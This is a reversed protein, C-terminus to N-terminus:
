GQNVRPPLQDMLAKLRSVFNNMGNLEIVVGLQQTLVTLSELDDPDLDMKESHYVKLLGIVNDRYKIPVSLISSIGEDAANKAYRIRSNSNLDEYYIAQGNKFELYEEDLTMAGKNLYSESLGYSSVRFLEKESEDYLLVSSGKFKFTKCLGEVIHRLLLEMDEYTSIAHVIARFEKLNYKREQKSTM